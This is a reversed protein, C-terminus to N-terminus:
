SGTKAWFVETSWSKEKSEDYEYDSTPTKLGFTSATVHWLFYQEYKMEMKPLLLFFNTM